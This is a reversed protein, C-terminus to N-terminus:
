LAVVGPDRSEASRAAGPIVLSALADFERWFVARIADTEMLIEHYSGEVEVYRCDPLRKAVKRTDATLVTKDAGAAVILVPIDVRTTEVSHRLFAAASFAFELWGWTLNGIM